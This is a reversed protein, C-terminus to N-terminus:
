DKFLKKIEQKKEHCCHVVKANTDNEIQCKCMNCELAGVKNVSHTYRGCEGFPCETIYDIRGYIFERVQYEIVTQKRGFKIKEQRM